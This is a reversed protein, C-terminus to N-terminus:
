SCNEEARGFNYYFTIYPVSGRNLSGRNCLGSACDYFIGWYLSFIDAHSLLHFGFLSVLIFKIHVTTKLLKTQRNKLELAKVIFLHVALYQSM